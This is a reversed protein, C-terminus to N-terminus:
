GPVDKQGSGTGDYSDINKMIVDLKDQEKQAEKRDQHERYAKMPDLTPLKVEEGKVVKQGVKAGIVFCVINTMGMVLLLLAEM